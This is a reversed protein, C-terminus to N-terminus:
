GLNTNKYSQKTKRISLRLFVVFFLSIFNRFCTKLNFAKFLFSPLFLSILLVEFWGLNEQVYFTPVLGFFTPFRSRNRLSLVLWSFIKTPFLFFDQTRFSFSYLVLLILDGVKKVLIGSLLTFSSSKHSPFKIKSM